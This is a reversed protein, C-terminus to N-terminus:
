TGKYKGQGHHLEMGDPPKPVVTSPRIVRRYPLILRVARDFLLYDWLWNIMVMLRNRFGILQFLHVVIWMIWAIFGTFSRKGVAAVAKNRGITAMSGKDKYVFLAQDKGSLSLLINGAACIGQQVAVPAVMPHSHKLGEVAALDGVVYVEPHDEVQLTSLVSVRGNSLTDLGWVQARPAGRVGATWVVTECPIVDRDRIHVTERTVHTVFAQLVIEVGMRVLRVLAYDRLKQPFSLLLMNAAELLVVRVEGFDLASYDRKLPGQVLEALAGAFEVGTAGGGIIVFTLIRRRKEEDSERAAREFCNLIHNRLVIAHELTKLEFSHRSAGPTNFFQTTSGAALVLYDYPIKMNHAEIVRNKMDIQRVDAMLYQVNPMNRVISRIPYAIGEPEIEAAAVQYLLPLFTHYNNRDVLLVDVATRALTRVAWLGGFGAGVVVVRPRREGGSSVRNASM